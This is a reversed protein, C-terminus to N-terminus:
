YYRVEWVPNTLHPLPCSYCSLWLAAYWSLVWCLSKALGSAVVLGTKLKMKGMLHACCLGKRAVRSSELVGGSRFGLRGVPVMVVKDQAVKAAGPQLLVGPLTGPETHSARM